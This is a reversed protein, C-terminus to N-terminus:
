FLYDHLGLNNPDFFWQQFTVTPLTGFMLLDFNILEQYHVRPILNDAFGRLFDYSLLIFLFPIWDFVFNRIRNFFLTPLILVFAYRDPALGIGQWIMVATM